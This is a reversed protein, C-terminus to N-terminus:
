LPSIWQYMYLHKCIFFIIIYKGEM